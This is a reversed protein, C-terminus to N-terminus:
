PEDHPPPGPYRPLDDALCLWAPRVADFGHGRPTVADVDDLTGLTVGISRGARDSMHTHAGCRPCFWRQSGASSAYASPRGATVTFQAPPVQIWAVTAGGTAKRCARCHCYDAVGNTPDLEYRVHGCLCGGATRRHTM